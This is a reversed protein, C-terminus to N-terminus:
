QLISGQQLIKGGAIAIDITNGDSNRLLANKILIDITM